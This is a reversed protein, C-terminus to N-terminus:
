ETTKAERAEPLVPAQVVTQVSADGDYVQLQFVFGGPLTSPGVSMRATAVSEVPIVRTTMQVLRTTSLVIGAAVRASGPVTRRRVTVTEPEAVSAPLPM